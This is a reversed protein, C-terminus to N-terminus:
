RANGRVLLIIFVLGGLFEIIVSLATNFAFARELITQGGVICITALLVAIPLVVRHKGSGALMYALNAVLLGFFTIPGVLATSVAVLVTVMLLILRVVRRHDVGLNIAPERGLALVDFVHMLRWGYLSVAAVIIASLTLIDANITNFSAFFRDQLVAFLDPDLMRQMLNSLSRFFVGCIIGVLMVLHLSRAAGSFLWYYLSGAFLVMVLTETVFRMNPGIWDVQVAGFFFVVVTQILIYLADFGMISPTLIRNNTVTQFLVTSVAISYAVLVMAALKTGRFSLIFSWSGKAGITMFAIAALLAIAGLLPILIAPRKLM